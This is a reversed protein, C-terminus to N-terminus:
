GRVAVVAEIVADVDRDELYQHLPLLLLRRLLDSTRPTADGTSLGEFDTIARGGWPLATGIGREALAARLQDRDAAEIEFNQCVDFRGGSDLEPLRMSSVEALEVTYRAAIDRRRLVDAEYHQLQVLLVAAQLNDLRSNRGWSRVEGADTRGHDRLCRLRDALDPDTTVIAGADGIAGLTKAPYFSFAGAIGWTGAARGKLRAGVAQAADEIVLWGQSTAIDVVVDLDACRGNLSVPIVAKTRPTALRMLDAPDVDHAPGVEAFRPTAGVAVVAGATAVFTHAPLIVEDGPGIGCALLILELGDTCNGVGVVEGAGLYSALDAEFRAVEAQMIFAGRRLVGDIQTLLEAGRERGLATYDYFPVKTATVDSKM